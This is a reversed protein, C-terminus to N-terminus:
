RSTPGQSSVFTMFADAFEMIRNRVRPEAPDPPRASEPNMSTLGARNQLRANPGHVLPQFRWLKWREVNWKLTPRRVNSTPREHLFEVVWKPSAGQSWSGQSRRADRRGATYISHPVGGALTHRRGLFTKMPLKLGFISAYGPRLGASGNGRAKRTQMAAAYCRAPGWCWPWRQGEGIFFSGVTLEKRVL